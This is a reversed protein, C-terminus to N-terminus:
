ESLSTDSSDAEENGNFFLWDDLISEIKDKEWYPIRLLIIDNENCYDTKIKDREQQGELNTCLKEFEMYHFEGDYEIAMNYEPLYFDFKLSSISKCGIFTKQSEFLINHSELYNRIKIENHSKVCGCSKTNGSLLSSATTYFKNGCSCMCEWIRKKSKTSGTPKIATVEGFVLGAVDVQNIKSSNEKRYCGCSMTKSYKTKLNNGTVVTMNGCDCQCNWLASGSPSKGYYGVVVLRGFRQGTLDIMQSHLRDYNLCGCSKTNNTRLDKGTVTVINGCDCRCVWRAKNEKNNEVRYLPTLRNYKHGTLDIFKGM